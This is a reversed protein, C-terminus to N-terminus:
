EARAAAAPDAVYTFPIIAEDVDGSTLDRMIIKLEYPGVTLTPPLEIQHVLYFDRRKNRSTEVINQERKGWVYAGDRYLKLEQSLEVTWGAGYAPEASARLDAPAFPRQAFNDIETYVIMRQVRGAVFSSSDFPEYRGFGVVRQALTALRINMPKAEWVRDAADLFREALGDSQDVPAAVVSRVGELATREQPSLLELEIPDVSEDLTGPRLSEMASLTLLAGISMNGGDLKARLLSAIQEVHTAIKQQPSQANHEHQELMAEWTPMILRTQMTALRRQTASWVAAGPNTSLSALWADQAADDAPADRTTMASSVAQEGSGTSAALVRDLDAAVRQAYEALDPTDDATPLSSDDLSPGTPADSMLRALSTDVGDSSSTPANSSCGAIWLGGLVLSASCAVVVQRARNKQM